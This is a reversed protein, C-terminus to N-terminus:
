MSTLDEHWSPSSEGEADPGRAELAQHKLYIVLLAGLNPRTNNNPFVVKALVMMDEENVRTFDGRAQLINAIVYYLYLIAPCEISKEWPLTSPIRM